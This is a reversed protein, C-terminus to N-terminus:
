AGIRSVCNRCFTFTPDNIEGCAPCRRGDEDDLDAGVLGDGSIARPSGDTSYAELSSADNGGGLYRYVAFQLVTVLVVLLLVWALQAM